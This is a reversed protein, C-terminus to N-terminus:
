QVLFSLPEITKKPSVQVIEFSVIDEAVFPDQKVRLELDEPTTSHVLVIGGKGPEISGVMLFVGDDFGKKIWENHGAMYESAKSKNQSFKLNVIFM